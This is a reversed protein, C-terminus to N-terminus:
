NFKAQFALPLFVPKGYIKGILFAYPLLGLRAHAKRM